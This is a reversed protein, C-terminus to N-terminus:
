ADEVIISLAQISNEIVTQDQHTLNGILFQLLDPWIYFGGKVILTSMISGVTKRVNYEPDHFAILLRAKIYQITENSLYAFNKEIQVKLALGSVHRVASPVDAPM